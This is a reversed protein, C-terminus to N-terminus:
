KEMQTAVRPTDSRSRTRAPLDYTIGWADEAEVTSLLIDDTDAPPPGTPAAVAPTVRRTISIQDADASQDV